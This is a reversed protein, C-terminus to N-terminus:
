GVYVVGRKYQDTIQQMERSPGFTKVSDVTTLQVVTTLPDAKARVAEYVKLALLRKIDDPVAAWGFKGTIWVMEQGYPWCALSTSAELVDYKRGSGMENTAMATGATNLSRRHYYATTTTMTTGGAQRTQLTTISRIRRPVTLLDGGYADIKITEDADGGPPEFDDGLDLELQTTLRAIVGDIYADDGDAETLVIDSAWSKLTRQRFDAAAIYTM